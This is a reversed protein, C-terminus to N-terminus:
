STRCLEELKRIVEDKSASVFVVKQTSTLGRVVEVRANFLKSLLKELEANAKGGKPPSKVSVEIAKRWENYGRIGSKKSNPSVDVNLYCGNAKEKVADKLKEVNM